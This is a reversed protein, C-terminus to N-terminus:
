NRGSRAKGRFRGLVRRALARAGLAHMSPTDRVSVEVLSVGPSRLARALTAEAGGGLRLYHAGVAAALKAFDTKGVRTGHTRAHAGLQQLRILGLRGDNFVIVTLPIRDRV